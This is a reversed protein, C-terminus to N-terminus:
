NTSSIKAAEHLSDLVPKYSPPPLSGTNRPLMQSIVQEEVTVPFQNMATLHQKKKLETPLYKRLPGTGTTNESRRILEYAAVIGLVGLVPHAFLLSLAGIIVVVRGLLNDVLKALEHPPQINFIIFISLLLALITSSKNSKVSKLISTM